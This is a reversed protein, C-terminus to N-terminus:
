DATSELSKQKADIQKWAELNPYEKRLFMGAMRPIGRRKWNSICGLTVDLKPQLEKIEIEKLIKRADVSSIKGSMILSQKFKRKYM